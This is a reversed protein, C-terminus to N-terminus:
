WKKLMELRSGKPNDCHEGEGCSYEELKACPMHPCEGCHEMGKEQCCQAIPCSGYFPNGMTTICGKCGRSEAFSCFDCLLGCRSQPKLIDKLSFNVQERDIWLSAERTKFHIAFYEPDEPGEPFHNIFWDQWLDKKKESDTIIESDGILTVNNGESRFCVSTRGNKELALAMPGSTGTVFYCSHIGEPRINSRTATEPYGKKNIVSFYGESSDCIIKEAKAIIDPTMRIEKQMLYTKKGCCVPCSYTM